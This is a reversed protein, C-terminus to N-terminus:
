KRERSDLILWFEPISLKGVEVESLEIEKTYHRKSGSRYRDYSGDKAEIAEDIKREIDEESDSAYELTLVTAQSSRGPTKYYVKYAKLSEEYPNPAM